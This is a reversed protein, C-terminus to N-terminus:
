AVCFALEDDMGWKKDPFAWGAFLFLVKPKDPEEHPSIAVGFLRPKDEVIIPESACIFFENTTLDTKQLLYHLAALRPCPKLGFNAAAAYVNKSTPDSGQYIDRVKVKVLQVEHSPVTEGVMTQDIVEQIGTERLPFSSLVEEASALISINAQHLLNNLEFSTKDDITYTRREVITEPFKTYIYELHPYKIFIQPFLPGIYTKTQYNIESEQWAIEEPLCNLVACVAEKQNLQSRIQDIRPDNEIGFQEIPRDFEYIFRYEDHSLPQHAQVKRTIDGLLQTDTLKQLFAAKNQSSEHMLAEAVVDQIYPDLNEDSGVGRIESIVGDKSVIVVRPVEAKGTSNHSYFVSLDNDALYQTAHEENRICWGSGYNVLDDVLQQSDSGQPYKRWEGTTILLLEEPISIIRDLAWGYLKAFSPRVAMLLKTFAERDDMTVDHKFKILPFENLEAQQVAQRKVMADYIFGLAEHNLDPYPSLTKKPQDRKAFSQKDMQYKGMNLLSRFAWYRFWESYHDVAENSSFYEVWKNLSSKQAAIVTQKDYSDPMNEEKTLYKEFLLKKLLSTARYRKEPDHHNLLRHLRDFYNQIRAEPDTIKEEGTQVQTRRAAATVEESANLHFLEQLLDLGLNEM